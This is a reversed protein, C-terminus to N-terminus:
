FFLITFLRELFPFSDMLQEFFSSTEKNKPMSVELTVWDSYDGREDEARARITYEGPEFWQHTAIAAEGSKIPGIWANFRGDGWEVFYRIDQNEPDTTVITYEHGEEYKGETPGMITPTHPPENGDGYLRSTSGIYITGDVGISPSSYVYQNAIWKRWRETGDPNVAVLEGGFMGDIVTGVYIIGEASIAPSSWADNHENGFDFSWKISGDPNIAYLCKGGVYITGDNGISPNANSGWDILTKWRFSGNQYIAHLYDDSSAIYITGDNAISPSGRVWDGTKYRWKLTGNPYLAYLYSNHSGFYIIGNDDIAPDSKIFYDVDYYWKESGDPNVAYFRGSYIEPGKVGFYIVGDEGIIPSVDTRGGAYFRWKITGNPHIAYLSKDWSTVYLTGEEDITPTSTIIDTTKYKWNVTGNPYLCYLYSDWCGFYIMGNADITVSGEILSETKFRWKESMTIHSTNYPSQSTHRRDHCMMPWPSDMPNIFLVNEQDAAKRIKNTIMEKSVISPITLILILLLVFIVKLFYKM